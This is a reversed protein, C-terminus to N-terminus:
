QVTGALDYLQAASNVGSANLSNESVYPVPKGKETVWTMIESESGGRGNDM